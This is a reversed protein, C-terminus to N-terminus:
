IIVYFKSNFSVLDDALIFVIHPPKKANDMNTENNDEEGIIGNDKTDAAPTTTEIGDYFRNKASKDCLIEGSKACSNVDYICISLVIGIYGNLLM